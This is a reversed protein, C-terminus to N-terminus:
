SEESEGPGRTFQSKENEDCFRQALRAQTFFGVASSGKPTQTLAQSDPGRQAPYFGEQVKQQNLMQSQVQEPKYPTPAKKQTFRSVLYGAGLLGSLVVVEM